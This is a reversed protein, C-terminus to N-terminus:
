QAGITSHNKTSVRYDPNVFCRKIVKNKQRAVSCYPAQRKFSWLRGGSRPLQKGTGIVCVNGPHDLPSTRAKDQCIASGRLDTRKAVNPAQTNQM